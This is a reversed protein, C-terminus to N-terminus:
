SWTCWCCRAVRARRARLLEARLDLDGVVRRRRPEVGLGPQERALAPVRRGVDARRVQGVRGLDGPELPVHADRASAIRVGDRLHARDERAVPRAAVEDGVVGVLELTPGLDGANTVRGQQGRDLELQPRELLRQELVDHEGPMLAVMAVQEHRRGPRALRHHRSDVVRAQPCLQRAATQEEHRVALLDEVLTARGETMGEAVRAEALLPDAPLSRGPELVHEGRDLAEVRGVDPADVRAVEVHDDHVLEMVRGGRRVLRQEIMEGGDLQEAQGGRRLPSVAQVHQAIEVAPDRGLEPEPVRDVLAIERRERVEADVIPEVETLHRPPAALSRRCSRQLVHEGGVVCPRVEDDLLQPALEGIRRRHPRETVADADAVRLEHRPTEGLEPQRGDRQRRRAAPVLADVAKRSRDSPRTRATKVTSRKLSPMSTGVTSVSSSSRGVSLGVSNRCCSPRPSRFAAPLPAHVTSSKTPVCRLSNRKSRRRRASSPPERAWTSCCTRCSKGNRGAPQLKWSSETARSITSALM